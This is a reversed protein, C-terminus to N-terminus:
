QVLQRLGALGGRLGFDLALDAVQEKHEDIEGAEEFHIGFLGQALGVRFEASAEAVDLLAGFKGARRDFFHFRQPLLGLLGIISIRGRVACVSNRSATRNCCSIQPNSSTSSSGSRRNTTALLIPPWASPANSPPRM